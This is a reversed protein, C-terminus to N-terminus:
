YWGPLSRPSLVCSLAGVNDVFHIVARNRFVEPLSFYAGVAAALEAQMIYTKLNNSLFSYFWFPLVKGGCYSAGSATDYVYMGLVALPEGSPGWHFSADTYLLVPAMALVEMPIALEPLIDPTLIATLFALMAEMSPTWATAHQEHQRQMLPQTAARGIHGYMPTCLWAARGRLSAAQGARM